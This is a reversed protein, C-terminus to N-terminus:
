KHHKIKHSVLKAPGARCRGAGLRVSSNQCSAAYQMQMSAYYIFYILLAASSLFSMVPFPKAPASSTTLKERDWTHRSHPRFLPACWDGDGPAFSVLVLADRTMGMFLFGYLYFAM